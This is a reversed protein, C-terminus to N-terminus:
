RTIVEAIKGDNPNIIVLKHQVAAFKYPKLAPIDAAAKATVPASAITSPVAAGITLNSGSPMRQNLFSTYLDNWAMEQQQPTLNLQDSAQTGMSAASATSIGAALIAAALAIPVHKKMNIEVDPIIV